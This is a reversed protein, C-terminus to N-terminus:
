FLRRLIGLMSYSGFYRFVGLSARKMATVANIGYPFINRFLSFSQTVFWVDKFVWLNGGSAPAFELYYIQCM